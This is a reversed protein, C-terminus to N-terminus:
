IKEYRKVFPLFINCSYRLYLASTTLNICVIEVYYFTHVVNHKTSSFQEECDLELTSITFNKLNRQNTKRSKLPNLQFRVVFHVFHAVDNLQILRAGERHMLRDDTYAKEAINQASYWQNRAVHISALMWSDWM